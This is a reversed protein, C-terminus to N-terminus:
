ELEERNVFRTGRGASGYSLHYCPSAGVGNDVLSAGSFLADGIRTQVKGRREETLAVYFDEGLLVLRRSGDDILYECLGEEGADLDFHKLVEANGFFLGVHVLDM